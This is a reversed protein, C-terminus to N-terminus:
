KWYGSGKRILSRPDGSWFELASTREGRPGDHTGVSEGEGSIRLGAGVRTAYLFRQPQSPDPRPLYEISTFRLDWQEHLAPDQTRLWVEDIPAAILIRSTSATPAACPPSPLHARRNIDFRM